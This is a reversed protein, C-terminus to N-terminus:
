EKEKGFIRMENPTIGEYKKFFRHFSQINHYGVREAIESVKCDSELLMQKAAQIRRRNVYEAASFGSGQKMVSRMYSYSIGLESAMTEFDIDERYHEDLHQLVRYYLTLEEKHKTSPEEKGVDMQRIFDELYAEIEEVTDMEAIAAYVQRGRELAGAMEQKEEVLTRILTGTLQQYLLIVNDYSVTTMEMIRSRIQKLEKFLEEIKGSKLCNVIRKESDYPYYFSKANSFEQKWCINRNKGAVIRHKIADEAETLCEKVGSMGAHVDSIGITVTHPFMKLIERRIESTRQELFVIFKKRDYIRMNLIVACSSSRLRIAQVAMVDEEQLGMFLSEMQHFFYARDDSSYKRRFESGNDVSVLLVMFHDYPFVKQLNEPKVEATHTGMLLERIHLRQAESNRKELIEHVQKGERQMKEFISDLFAFENEGSVKDGAAEERDDRVKQVLLRLPQFMRYSFFLVLSIELAIFIVLLLMLYWADKRAQGVLSEMKSASLYTWGNFDSKVYSYLYGDSQQFYGSKQETESIQELLKLNESDIPVMISEPHALVQNNEDLIWTVEAEEGSPENLLRSLQSLYLNCVLVYGKSSILPNSSYIYSLVPITNEAKGEQDNLTRACWSGKLKGSEELQKSLWGLSAYNETRCIGKDTSIVYDGSQEIFFCSHVMSETGFVTNLDEEIDWATKVLEFDDSLVEYSASTKLKGCSSNGAFQIVNKAYNNLTQEVTRSITELKEVKSAAISQESNEVIRGMSFYTFVLAPIVVSCFIMLFIQGLFPFRKM